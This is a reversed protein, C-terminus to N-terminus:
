RRTNLPPFTKTKRRIKDGPNKMETQRDKDAKKRWAEAEKETETEISRDTNKQKNRWTETKEGMYRDDDMTAELYAHRSSPEAPPASEM